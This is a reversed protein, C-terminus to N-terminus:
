KGGRMAEDTDKLFKEQQENIAPKLYPQATMKRTGHEVFDGYEVGVNVEGKNENCDSVISRRLQGTDVPAYKKAKREISLTNKRIIEPLKSEAQSMKELKEQLRDIGSAM